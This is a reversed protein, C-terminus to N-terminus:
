LFWILEYKLASLAVDLISDASYLQYSNNSILFYSEKSWIIMEGLRQVCVCVCACVCMLANCSAPFVYAFAFLCPMQLCHSRIISSFSAYSPLHHSSSCFLFSPYLHHKYSSSCHEFENVKSWKGLFVVRVLGKTEFANMLFGSSHTLWCSPSVACEM